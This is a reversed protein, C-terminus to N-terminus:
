LLHYTPRVQLYPLVIDFISGMVLKLLGQKMSSSSPGDEDEEENEGLDLLYPLDDVGELSKWIELHGRGGEGNVIEWGLAEGQWQRYGQGGARGITGIAEGDDGDDAFNQPGNLDSNSM